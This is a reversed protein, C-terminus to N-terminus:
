ALLTGSASCNVHAGGPRGMPRHTSCLSGLVGRTLDGFWKRPGLDARSIRVFPYAQDLDIVDVWVPELKMCRADDAVIVAWGDLVGQSRESGSTGGRALLAGLPSGVQAEVGGGAQWASCAGVRAGTMWGLCWQSM